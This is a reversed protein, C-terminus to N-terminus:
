TPAWFWLLTPLKGDAVTALAFPKGTKVDTVNLVPLASKTTAAKKAPVTTTTAAQAFSGLPTAVILAGFLAITKWRQQRLHRYSHPM